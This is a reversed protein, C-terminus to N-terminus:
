LTGGNDLQNISAEAAAWFLAWQETLVGVAYAYDTGNEGLAEPDPQVGFNNPAPPPAGVGMPAAEFQTGPTGTYGASATAIADKLREITANLNILRSTAQNTMSGFPTMNPIILAAM